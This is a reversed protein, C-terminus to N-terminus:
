HGAMRVLESLSPYKTATVKSYNGLWGLEKAYWDMRRAALGAIDDEYGALVFHRGTLKRAMIWRWNDFELVKSPFLKIGTKRHLKAYWPDFIELGDRKAIHMLRKMNKGLLVAPRDWLYNAIARRAAGVAVRGGRVLAPGGILVTAVEFFFWSADQIGEGEISMIEVAELLSLRASEGQYWIDVIEGAENFHIANWPRWNGIEVTAVKETKEQADLDPLNLFPDDDWSPGERFVDDEDNPSWPDSASADWNTYSSTQDELDSKGTPDIRNAPDNRVFSYRNWSQPDYPDPVLSDPQTFRGIVPDQCRAHFDTVKTEEDQRMGNFGLRQDLPLGGSIIDGLPDYKIIDDFIGQEDIVSRVSGLHDHLLVKHSEDSLNIEIQRGLGSSLSLKQLVSTGTGDSIEEFTPSFLFQLGGQLIGGSDCGTDMDPECNSYYAEGVKEGSPGFYSRSTLRTDLKIGELRNQSDYSLTRGSSGILNGNHDYSFNGQNNGKVAHPGADVEPREEGYYYRRTWSLSGGGGNVGDALVLPLTRPQGGCAFYGDNADVYKKMKVHTLNGSSSYCYGYTIFPNQAELSYWSEATRLRSLEDYAYVFKSGNDEDYRDDPNRIHATINGQIDYQYNLDLFTKNPVDAVVREAKISELFFSPGAEGPHDNGIDYYTFSQRLNESDTLRVDVTSLEGVGTLDNYEYGTLYDTEEPTGMSKKRLLFM